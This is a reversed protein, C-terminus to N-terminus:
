RHREDARAALLHNPDENPGTVEWRGEEGPDRRRLRVVQSCIAQWTTPRWGCSQWSANLRHDLKAGASVRPPRSVLGARGPCHRLGAPPQGFRVSGCVAAATGRQGADFTQRRGAPDHRGDVADDIPRRTRARRREPRHALRHRDELAAPGRAVGAGAREFLEVGEGLLVTPDGSILSMVSEVGLTTYSLVFDAGARHIAEVNREHTIRSVIRLDPNLRRCFVALYINM